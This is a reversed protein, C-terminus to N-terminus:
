SLDDATALGPWWGAPITLEGLCTGDRGGPSCVGSVTRNGLAANLLICVSSKKKASFGRQGTHFLVRLVPSDKRVERTVLHASLDLLHPQLGPEVTSNGSLDPLALSAPVTQRTLFPGYAARLGVLHGNQLVTFPREQTTTSAFEPIRTTAAGLVSSPVSPM